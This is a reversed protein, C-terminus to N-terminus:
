VRSPLNSSHVASVSSRGMELPLHALCVIPNQLLNMAKLIALTWTQTQCPSYILDASELNALTWRQQKIDGFPLPSKRLLQEIGALEAKGEFPM